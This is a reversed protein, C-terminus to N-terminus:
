LDEVLDRIRVRLAKAIRLLAAISVSNEGREIEGFYNPHLDAKEALTEQSLRAAKRYRRITEGLIKCHKPIAAM